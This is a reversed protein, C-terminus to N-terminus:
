GRIFSLPEDPNDQSHKISLDHMPRHSVSNNIPRIPRFDDILYGHESTYHYIPEYGLEKMQDIVITVLKITRGIHEYDHPIYLPQGNVEVPELFTRYGHLANNRIINLIKQLTKPDNSKFLGHHITPPRNGLHTKPKPM